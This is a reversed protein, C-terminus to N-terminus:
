VVSKRDVQYGGSDTLIPRDWAMLRHLGGLSRILGSGPRLMLHYTNALLIRTGSARLDAPTLGKVTGQTGVPM